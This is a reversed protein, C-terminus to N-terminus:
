LMYPGQLFCLIEQEIVQAINSLLRQNRNTLVSSDLLRKEGCCRHTFNIDRDFAKLRLEVDLCPSANLISNSSFSDKEKSPHELEAYGKIEAKQPSSPFSRKTLGYKGKQMQAVLGRAVFEKATGLYTTPSIKMGQFSSHTSNREPKLPEVFSFTMYASGGTTLVKWGFGMVKAM